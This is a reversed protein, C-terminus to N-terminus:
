QTGFNELEVIVAEGQEDIIYSFEIVDDPELAYQAFNDRLEEALRFEKPGIEDPVGSIKVAITDGELGAFRGSDIHLDQSEDEANDEGNDEGIAESRDELIVIRGAKAQEPYSEAIAGDAWVEVILGTFDDPSVPKGDMEVVTDATLTFYIARKDSEFWEGEPVGARDLGEIVLIVNQEASNVIGTITPPTSSEPQSCGAAALATILLTILIFSLKGKM